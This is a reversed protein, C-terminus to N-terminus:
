YNDRGSNKGDRRGATYGASNGEKYGHDFGKSYHKNEITAMWRFFEVSKIRGVRLLSLMEVKTFPKEKPSLCLKMQKM